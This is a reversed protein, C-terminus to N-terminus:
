GVESMSPRQHAPETSSGGVMHDIGDVFHRWDFREVQRRANRGMEELTDLHGPFTQLVKAWAEAQPQLLWGTEGHVISETPGGYANAM